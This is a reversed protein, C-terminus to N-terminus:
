FTKIQQTGSKTIDPLLKDLSPVLESFGNERLKSFLERELETEDPTSKNIGLGSLKSLASSNQEVETQLILDQLESNASGNSSLQDLNSLLEKVLYDKKDLLDFQKELNNVNQSEIKKIINENTVDIVSLCFYDLNNVTFWQVIIEVPVLQKSRTKAYGNISTYTKNRIIEILSRTTESDFIDRPSNLIDTRSKDILKCLALNCDVFIFDTDQNTDNTKLGILSGEFALNYFQKTIVQNLLVKKVLVALKRESSVLPILTYCVALYNFITLIFYAQSTKDLFLGAVRDLIVTLAVVASWALVTCLLKDLKSFYFFFYFTSIGLIIFYNVISLVTFLTVLSSVSMCLCYTPLKYIVVWEKSYSLL